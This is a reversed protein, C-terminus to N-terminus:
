KPRRPLERWAAWFKEPNMALVHEIKKPPPIKGAQFKNFTSSETYGAIRWVDAKRTVSDINAPKHRNMTALFAEIRQRPAAPNASAPPPVEPGSAAAMKSPPANGTAVTTSPAASEDSDFVSEVFEDTLFRRLRAPIKTYTLELWLALLRRHQSPPYDANARLFEAFGDRYIERVDEALYKEFRQQQERYLPVNYYGPPDEFLNLGQARRLIDRMSRVFEDLLERPVPVDESM